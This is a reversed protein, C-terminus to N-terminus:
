IERTFFGQGLSVGPLLRWFGSAFAMSFYWSVYTDKAGPKYIFSLLHTTGYASCSIDLRRHLPGFPSVYVFFMLISVSLLTVSSSLMSSICCSLLTIFSPFGASCVRKDSWFTSQYTDIFSLHGTQLGTPRLYIQCILFISLSSLTNDSSATVHSLIHPAQFSSQILPSGSPPFIVPFRCCLWWLTM